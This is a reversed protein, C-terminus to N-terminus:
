LFDNKKANKVFDIGKPLFVVIICLKHIRGVHTASSKGVVRRVPRKKNHIVNSVIYM